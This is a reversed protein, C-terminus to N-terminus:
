FTYENHASDGCIDRKEISWFNMGCIKCQQRQFGEKEFTKTSYYQKYDKGFEKRLEAKDLKKVDLLGDSKTGFWVHTELTGAYTASGNRRKLFLRQNANAM